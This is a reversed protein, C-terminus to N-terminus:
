FGEDRRSRRYLSWLQGAAQLVHYPRVKSGAIDRWVPLPHEYIKRYPNESMTRYIALYRLLLEVDFIWLTSFPERFVEATWRTVRFAKAGCQTDYTPLRLVLSAFTAFVRGLYHRHPKRDIRKGMLKVRSGLVIEVEPLEVLLDVFGVMLSLPTALDADWYGVVSADWDLAKLIGIRVAECKGQNRELSLRRFRGNSKQVLEELVASTQDTSGDDVFLLHLYPESTELFGLFAGQDLRSAENYCPVIFWCNTEAQPRTESDSTM